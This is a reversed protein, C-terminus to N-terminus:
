AAQQQEVEKIFNDVAKRTVQTRALDMDDAIADLKDIQDQSLKLTLSVPFKKKRRVGSPTDDQTAM